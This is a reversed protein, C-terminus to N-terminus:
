YAMLMVWLVKTDEKSVKNFYMLTRKMDYQHCHRHLVFTVLNMKAYHKLMNPVLYFEDMSSYLLTSWKMWERAKTHSILRSMDGWREQWPTRLTAHSSKTCTNDEVEEKRIIMINNSNSKYYQSYGSRGSWSSGFGYNLETWGQYGCCASWDSNYMTSKCHFLIRAFM